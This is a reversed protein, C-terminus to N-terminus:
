VVDKRAEVLKHIIRISSNINSIISLASVSGHKKLALDGALGNIFAAIACAKFPEIGLAVLATVIGALTDGTGGVSMYPNGTINYKLRIGDSIIDVPGKVLLTCKIRKAEERVIKGRELIMYPPPLERGTLIKFEGAHPTLIINRGKIIDIRRSVAKIADADLIIPKKINSVLELVANVTEEKLGLGPGILVARCRESLKIVDDVVDVTLYEESKLPYVVLEPSYTKVIMAAKMPTAIIALDVGMKLAALAALTPAGTYKSSGGVILIYGYDGKKAWPSRINVIEKLDELNVSNLVVESLVNRLKGEVIRLPTIVKAEKYRQTINLAEKMRSPKILLIIKSPSTFESTLKSTLSFLIIERYTPKDLFVIKVKFGRLCLITTLYVGILGLISNDCVVLVRDKKSIEGELCHLLLTLYPIHLRDLDLGLILEFPISFISPTSATM